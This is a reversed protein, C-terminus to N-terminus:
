NVRETTQIDVIVRGGAPPTEQVAVLRAKYLVSPMYKGGLVTWLNNLNEFGINHMTFYVDYPLGAAPDNMAIRKNVQFFQIVYGIRKLAEKYQVFNASFLLYLNLFLTPSQTVFSSGIQQVPYNNRLTNEEEVNILTLIIHDELSDVGPADAQREHRAVDAPLVLGFNDGFSALYDNMQATIQDIAVDIM